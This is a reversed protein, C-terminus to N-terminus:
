VIIRMYNKIKNLNATIDEAWGWEWVLTRFFEQEFWRMEESKPKNDYEGRKKKKFSEEEGEPAQNWIELTAENVKMLSSYKFYDIFTELQEKSVQRDLGRESCCEQLDEAVVDYFIAAALAAQSDEESPDDDNIFRMKGGDIPIKAAIFEAVEVPKIFYEFDIKQEELVEELYGNMVNLNEKDDLASALKPIDLRTLKESGDNSDVYKNFM